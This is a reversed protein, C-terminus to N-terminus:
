LALKGIQYGDLVRNPQREKGHEGHFISTGNVGCLRLIVSRGGPHRPIWKTLDYVNGDIASWCDGASAHKKVEALTFASPQNTTASASASPSATATAPGTLKGLAFGSLITAPRGQSGHQAHFAATGDTGCMGSIPAPGGPHRSVWDTLNYVTGDVVSWCDAATSHQKVADMTLGQAATPTSGSASPGPAPALEGQWVAAAGSHGVLVTLVISAAALAASLWGTVATVVTSGQPRRDLFFWVAAAITGVVSVPVLIDGYLAHEAPLGVHTALAEGSEKAVFTAVTGIALGSLTLWGYKARWKPVFVLLILAIASLPLLVVAAHVVLPHVPLGTIQDFLGGEAPLLIHM